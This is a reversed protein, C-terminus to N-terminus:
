RARAHCPSSQKRHIANFPKQGLYEFFTYTSCTTGQLQTHVSTHTTVQRRTGSVILVVETLPLQHATPTNLTKDDMLYDICEKRV